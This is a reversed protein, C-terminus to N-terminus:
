ELVQRAAVAIKSAEAELERGALVEPVRKDWEGDDKWRILTSRGIAYGQEKLLKFLGIISRQDGMDIYATFAQLKTVASQMRAETFLHPPQGFRASVASPGRDSRRKRTPRAWTM